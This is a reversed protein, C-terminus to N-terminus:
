DATLNPLFLQFPSLPRFSSCPLFNLPSALLPPPLLILSAHLLPDLCPRGSPRGHQLPALGPRSPLSPPFSPAPHFCLLLLIFSSLSVACCFCAEHWTRGLANLVVM